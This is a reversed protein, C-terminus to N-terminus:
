NYSDSMVGKVSKGKQRYDPSIDLRIFENAKRERITTRITTRIISPCNETLIAVTLTFYIV